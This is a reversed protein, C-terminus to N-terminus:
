WGLPQAAKQLLDSQIFYRIHMIRRNGQKSAKAAIKYFSFLFLGQV